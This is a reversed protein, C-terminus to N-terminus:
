YLTELDETELAELMADLLAERSVEDDGAAPEMWVSEEPLAPVLEEPNFYDAHEEIFDITEEPTLQSFQVTNKKEVLPQLMWFGLAIMGVAVAPRWVWWLLSRLWEGHKETTKSASAAVLVAEREQRIKWLVDSQMEQFYQEPPDTTQIASKLNALLPSIEDLEEFVAKRNSM